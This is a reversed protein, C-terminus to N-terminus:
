DKFTVYHEGAGRISLKAEKGELLCSFEEHVCGTESDLIRKRKFIKDVCLKRNGLMVQRPVEEGKYGARFKVVVKLAKNDTRM